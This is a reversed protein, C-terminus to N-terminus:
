GCEYYNQGSAAWNLFLAIIENLHRPGCVGEFKHGKVKCIYWDDKDAGEFHVEDFVRHLLHTDNLDVAFSWGPNDLTSISIGYAHEWGGDCHSVYWDQLRKLVDAYKPMM